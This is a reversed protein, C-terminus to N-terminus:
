KVELTIDGFSLLRSGKRNQKPIIRKMKIRYSGNTKFDYFDSINLQAKYEKQPTLTITRPSSNIPLLTGIEEPTATNEHFKKLIIERFSSVRRGGSDTVATKYYEYFNGHIVSLTKNTMNQISVDILIQGDSNLLVFPTTTCFQLGEIIPSCKKAPATRNEQIQACVTLGSVFILATSTIEGFAARYALLVIPMGFLAIM